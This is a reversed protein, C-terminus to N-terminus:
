KKQYKKMAVAVQHSYDDKRKKLENVITDHNKESKNQSLKYSAEISSIEIEIGKVGKIERNIYKKSMKEMSVPHEVSKEHKDVLRKLTDWLEQGELLKMKGYVHVAIYNWTPVSEYDYWSSSVYTHPGQFIALVEQTEDIDKWQINGRSVHTLLVDKGEANKTLEMPIHTAWPKDNVQSVLIGFSNAQVFAKVDEVNTNKYELPIYM